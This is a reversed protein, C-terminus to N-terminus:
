LPIKLTLHEAGDFTEACGCAELNRNAGCRPCLGACSERCLPKLPVLLYIQERALEKLDIRVGDFSTLALEEEDAEGESAPRGLIGPRFVRYCAESVPMQVPAACRSCVLTLVAEVRGRFVVDGRARRFGGSLRVKEVPASDGGLPIPELELTRDIEFGDPPIRNVEIFM